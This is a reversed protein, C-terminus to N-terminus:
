DGTIIVVGGAAIIMTLPQLVSVKEQLRVLL